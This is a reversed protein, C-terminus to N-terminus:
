CVIVIKVQVFFSNEYMKNFVFCINSNMMM